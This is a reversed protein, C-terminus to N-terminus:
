EWFNGWPYKKAGKTSMKSFIVQFLIYIKFCHPMRELHFCLILFLLSAAYDLLYVHILSFVKDTDVDQDMSYKGPLHCDSMAFIHLAINQSYITYCAFNSALKLLFFNLVDQFKHYNESYKLQM